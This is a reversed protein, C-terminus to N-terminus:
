TYVTKGPNTPVSTVYVNSRIDSHYLHIDSSYNYRIKVHKLYGLTNCERIITIHDGM